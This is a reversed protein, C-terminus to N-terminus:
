GRARPLRFERGERRRTVRENKLQSRRVKGADDRLAAEAIEYSDPRKHNVLCDTLVAHM